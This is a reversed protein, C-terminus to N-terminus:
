GSVAASRRRAAAGVMGFGLILMAWTAPEPIAGTALPKLFHGSASTFTLGEPLPGFGAGQTSGFNCTVGFRCDFDLFYKLGLSSGGRPILLETTLLWNFSGGGHGALPQFNWIPGLPSGYDTMAVIGSGRQDISVFSGVGAGTAAYRIGDYESCAACSTLLLKSQVWDYSTGSLNVIEGDVRLFVTLKADAGTTNTFWVTDGLRVSSVSYQGFSSSSAGGHSATGRMLGTRADVSGAFGAAVPLGGPLTGAADISMRASSVGTGYPGAMIATGSGYDVSYFPDFAGNIFWRSAGNGAASTVSYVSVEPATVTIFPGTAASASGAALLLPLAVGFIISRM